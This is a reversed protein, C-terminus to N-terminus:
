RVAQARRNEDAGVRASEATIPARPPVQMPGPMGTAPDFWGDTLAYMFVVLDAIDRASLALQGIKRCERGQAVEPAPWGEPNGPLCATSYFRVAEGLSPFVGNHMFPSTVSVNRLTPVKFRGAMAARQPEAGVGLDIFAAGYPNIQRSMRYYPNLPNAPLGLNHSSFDTFLPPRGDGSDIVHCAICNGRKPDSFVEHGRQEAENFTAVGARVADFKASFPAFEPGRQYAALAAAALQVARAPDALAGRGFLASFRSAYPAARLKAALASDSRNAMETPNFLPHRAQAELTDARQDLMLGGILTGREADFRPPPSFSLYMLTPANRQGFYDSRAGASIGAQMSTQPTAFAWRPDHCSACSQGPPESLMTDHFLERGLAALRGNDPALATTHLATTHLATTHYGPPM